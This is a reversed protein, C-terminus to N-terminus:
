YRHSMYLYVMNYKLKFYITRASTKICFNEVMVTLQSCYSESVEFERKGILSTRPVLDHFSDLYIGSTANKTLHSFIM